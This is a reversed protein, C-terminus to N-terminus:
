KIKSVAIENIAHSYIEMAGDMEQARMTEDDTRNKQKTM